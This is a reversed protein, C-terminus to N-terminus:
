IFYGKIDDFEDLIGLVLGGYRGGSPKPIIYMSGDSTVVVELDHCMDVFGIGDTSRGGLRRARKSVFSIYGGEYNM